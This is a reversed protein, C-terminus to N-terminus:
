IFNQRKKVLTLVLKKETAGISGSISGYIPGEGLVLVNNKRNNTHFSSSNDVDFVIVNRAFDNGFGWSGEGDFAIRQGNYTFKSKVASIVLKVTAFLCNKLTFNSIPNCMWNDSEYFIYLNLIFNSYLVSSNKKVLVPNNFKFIVKGKALNSM